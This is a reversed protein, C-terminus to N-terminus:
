VVEVLQIPILQLQPLRVGINARYLNEDVDRTEISIGLTSIGRYNDVHGIDVDEPINIRVDYPGYRFNGIKLTTRRADSEYNWLGIHYHRFDILWWHFGSSKIEIRLRPKISEKRKRKEEEEKAIARKAASTSELIAREVEKMVNTLTSIGNFVNKLETSVIRLNEVFAKVQKETTEKLEINSTVM